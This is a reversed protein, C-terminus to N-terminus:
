QPDFGLGCHILEPIARVALKELRIAGDCSVHLEHRGKAVYRVAEAPKDSDWQIVSAKDLAVTVTGKGKCMAAIFMWGETSRSFNVSYAAKPISSVDILASVLNNLKKEQPVPRESGGGLALLSPLILAGAIVQLNM